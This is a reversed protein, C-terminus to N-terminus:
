KTRWLTSCMEYGPCIGNNDINIHSFNLQIHSFSKKVNKKLKLEEHYMCFDNSECLIEYLHAKNQQLYGSCIELQYMLFCLFASNKQMAM